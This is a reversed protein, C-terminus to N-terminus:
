RKTGANAVNKKVNMSLSHQHKKKEQKRIKMKEKEAPSWKRKRDILPKPKPGPPQASSSKIASKKRNIYATSTNTFWQAFSALSQKATKWLTCICHFTINCPFTRSM